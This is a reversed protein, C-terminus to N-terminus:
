PVNTGAPCANQCPVNQKVWGIDRPDDSVFVSGDAAPSAAAAEPRFPMNGM